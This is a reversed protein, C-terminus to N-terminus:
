VIKSGIVPTISLYDISTKCEMLVDHSVQRQLNRIKLNQRLVTARCSCCHNKLHVKLLSRQDELHNPVRSSIHIDALKPQVDCGQGAPVKVFKEDNPLQVCSADPVCPLQLRVRCEQGAPMEVVKKDNPLQVGSAAAICQLRPRVRCDQGAPVEVSAQGSWQSTFNSCTTQMTSPQDTRATKM